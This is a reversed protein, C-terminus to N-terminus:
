RRDADPASPARTRASRGATILWTACSAGRCARFSAITPATAGTTSARGICRGVEEEGAFDTVAFVTAPLGLRELIAFALELVSRFGDDFTVVLTRHHAPSSVADSFAGRYGRAVLLGLQREFAAPCVSLDARWSDSLAHYCPM